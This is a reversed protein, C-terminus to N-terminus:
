AEMLKRIRKTFISKAEKISLIKEKTINRLCDMFENKTLKINKAAESLDDINEILDYLNNKHRDCNEEDDDFGKAEDTKKM